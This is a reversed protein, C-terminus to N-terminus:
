VLHFAGLAGGGSLLLATRGFAHRAEQLFSLKDATPYLPTQLIHLIQRKVEELYDRIPAPVEGFYEYIYSYSMSLPSDFGADLKRPPPGLEISFSQVPRSIYIKM